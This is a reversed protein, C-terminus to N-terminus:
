SIGGTATITVTGHNSVEDTDLAVNALGPTSGSRYLETLDFSFVGKVVSVAAYCGLSTIDKGAIATNDLYDEIAVKVLAKVAAQNQSDEVVLTGSANITVTDAPDVSLSVVMMKRANLYDFVTARLASSAVGGGIPTVYVNVMVGSTIAQASSVGAIRKALYEYDRDAVCRDATSLWQPLANGIEGATEKACGGVASTAQSVTAITASNCVTINGPALNGYNNDIYGLPMKFVEAQITALSVPVKGALDDGFHLEYKEDENLVLRCHTDTEASM